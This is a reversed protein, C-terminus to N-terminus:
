IHLEFLVEGQPSGCAEASSHQELSDAEKAPVEHVARHVTADSLKDSGQETQSANSMLRAAGVAKAAKDATPCCPSLKPGTYWNTM